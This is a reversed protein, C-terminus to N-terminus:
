QKPAKMVRIQGVRGCNSCKAPWTIFHPYERPGRTKKFTFGAGCVDCIEMPLTPRIIIQPPKHKGNNNQDERKKKRRTM